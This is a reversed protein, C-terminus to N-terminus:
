VRHPQEQIPGHACYPEQCDDRKDQTQCLADGCTGLLFKVDVQGIITLSIYARPFFVAACALEFSQVLLVQTSLM